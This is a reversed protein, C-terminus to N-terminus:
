SGMQELQAHVWEEVKHTFDMPDDKSPYIPNGIVVTVTGKYLWFSKRPLCYGANHAFPVIPVNLNLALKAAGLKFPKRTKPKIRTGEPFMIISFGLLFREKGQNIIQLLSSEGRSRDIAITSLARVGWGYFPVNFIEKKMIWVLPPLFRNLMMTEWASQHNGAFIVPTNPIKETGSVRYNIGGVYKLLFAFYASASMIIAHKKRPHIPM